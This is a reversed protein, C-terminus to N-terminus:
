GKIGDIHGDFTHLIYTSSFNIKWNGMEYKEREELWGCMDHCTM